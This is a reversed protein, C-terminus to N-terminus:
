LVTRIEPHYTADFKQILLLDHPSFYTYFVTSRWNLYHRFVSTMRNQSWGLGDGLKLQLRFITIM